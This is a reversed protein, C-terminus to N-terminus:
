RGSSGSLYLTLRPPSLPEFMTQNRRGPQFLKIDVNADFACSSAPETPPRLYDGTRRELDDGEVAASLLVLPLSADNVSALQIQSGEAGALTSTRMAPHCGSAVPIDSATIKGTEQRSM